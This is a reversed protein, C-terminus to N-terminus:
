RGDIQILAEEAFIGETLMEVGKLYLFVIGAGVPM